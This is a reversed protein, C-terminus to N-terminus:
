QCTAVTAITKGRSLVSDRQPHTKSDYKQTYLLIELLAGDLCDPSAKKKKEM